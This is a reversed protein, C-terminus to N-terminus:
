VPVSPQQKQLLKGIGRSQQAVHDLIDDLTLIGGGQYIGM